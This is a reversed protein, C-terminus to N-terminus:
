KQKKALGRPLTNFTATVTVAANGAVTCASTGSCGGSWGVFRSGSAPSATLTVLMGSGYAEECDVGCNIGAPTSVVSGAGTGAKLIAISYGTPRPMSAGCAEDSYPSEGLSDYAKVRYCYTLGDSIAADVYATMGPALDGVPAFTPEETLRREIIFAAQGGSNDDWSATLQASIATHANLLSALLLAALFPRLRHSPM